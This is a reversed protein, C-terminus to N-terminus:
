GQSVSQRRRAAVALGGLGALLLPLAAPLPVPAVSAVSFEATAGNVYSAGAWSVFLEKATFSAVPPGFTSGTLAFGTFSGPSLLTIRVGNFAANSWVPSSLITNLTVKLATADFDFVISTVTEVNLVADTTGVVGFQPSNAGDYLTSLDPFFYEVQYSAGNLTAAAAGAATLIVATMAMILARMGSPFCSLTM